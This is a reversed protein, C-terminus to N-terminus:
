SAKRAVVCTWKVDVYAGQAHEAALGEQYKEIGPNAHLYEGLGMLVTQAAIQQYYDPNDFKDEAVVELGHQEFSQALKHVWRSPHV